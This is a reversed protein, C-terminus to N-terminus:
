GIRELNLWPVFYREDDPSSEGDFAVQAGTLSLGSPVREPEDSFAVIKGARGPLPQRVARVRDGIRAPRDSGDGALAEGGAQPYDALSVIIV